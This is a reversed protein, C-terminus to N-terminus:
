QRAPWYREDWKVANYLMQVTADTAANCPSVFHTESNVTFRHTTM